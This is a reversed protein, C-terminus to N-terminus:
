LPVRTHTFVPLVSRERDPFMHQSLILRENWHLRVLALALTGRGLFLYFLSFGVSGWWGRWPGVGFGWRWARISRRMDVIDVRLVLLRCLWELEWELEGGLCGRHELRLSRDMCVWEVRVGRRHGLHVMYALLGLLGVVVRRVTIRNLRLLFM